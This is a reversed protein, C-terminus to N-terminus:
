HEFEIEAEFGLGAFMEGELELVFRTLDFELRSDPESGGPRTQDPGHDFWSVIIDAYGGWELEFPGEDILKKYPKDGRDVREFFDEEDIDRKDEDEVDIQKVTKTQEATLEDIRQELSQIKEANEKKLKELAEIRETNEKKLELIMEKLEQIEDKDPPSQAHAIGTLLITFCITLISPIFTRKKM